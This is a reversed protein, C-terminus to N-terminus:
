TMWKKLINSLSFNLELNNTRFIGGLILDKNLVLNNIEIDQKLFSALKEKILEVSEPYCYELDGVLIGQKLKWEIEFEKLAKKLEYLRGNLYVRRIFNDIVRDNDKSLSILDYILKKFIIEIKRM